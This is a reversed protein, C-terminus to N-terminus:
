ADVEQVLQMIAGHVTEREVGTNDVFKSMRGQGNNEGQGNLGRQRPQQRLCLWNTMSLLYIFSKQIM